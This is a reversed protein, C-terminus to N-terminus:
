AAPAADGNLAALQAQAAALAENTWDLTARVQALKSNAENVEATASVRYADVQAQGEELIQAAQKRAVISASGAEDMMAQAKRTAEAMLAEAKGATDTVLQVAYSRANSVDANLADLQAQKTAIAGDLTDAEAQKAALTADLEGVQALAAAADSVGKFVGAFQSLISAAATLDAQQVIPTPPTTTGTAVLVPAVPAPADPIVPTDVTPQVVVVVPPTPPDVPDTTGGQGDAEAPTPSPAAPPEQDAAAGGQGVPEPEVVPPATDAPVVPPVQAAPDIVPQPDVPTDGANGAGQDANLLTSDAAGADPAAGANGADGSAADTAAGVPPTGAADANGTDGTAADTASAAADAPVNGAVDVASQESGIVVTVPEVVPVITEGVPDPQAPATDPAAGSTADPAPDGVPAATQEPATQADNVGTDAAAAAAGPQSPPAANLADTM